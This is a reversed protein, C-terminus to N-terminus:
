PAIEIVALPWPAPDAGLAAAQAIHARVGHCDPASLAAALLALDLSMLRRTALLLFRDGPEVACVMEACEAEGTGGLGVAVSARRSSLLTDVGAGPGAEEAFVPRMQGRRWQWVEGTGIRLVAAWRGTTHLALVAADEMVPDILDEGAAQLAGHRALLRERLKQMGGSFEGPQMAAAVAQATAAARCRPDHAGDDAALVTLAGDASVFVTSKGATAAAPASTPQDVAAAAAPPTAPTVAAPPPAPSAATRAFGPVTIDDPVPASAPPEGIGDLLASLDDPLSAVRATPAVAAAEAAQVPAAPAAVPAPAPAPTPPAAPSSAFGRLSQWQTEAQGADLFAAFGSPAPLGQTLMASAPVAGAGHTWWLCWGTGTASVQLWLAELFAEDHGHVRLPLRWQGAARWDVGQLATAPDSRTVALPGPLSALRADFADAGAGHYRAQAHSQELADFWRQAERLTHTCAAPESGLPAAMVMPFCRGVRDAAPAMVGAWAPEGCVGPSLVFRWAPSAHWADHWREGLQERSAAVAHEFHRDWRDVFEAPLRRQVFDGAGPLKGFFGVLASM